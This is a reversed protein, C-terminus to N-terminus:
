GGFPAFSNISKVITLGSPKNLDVIIIGGLMMLSIEVMQRRFLVKYHTTTITDKAPINTSIVRETRSVGRFFQIGFAGYRAPDKCGKLVNNLKIFYKESEVLFLNKVNSQFHAGVGNSAM